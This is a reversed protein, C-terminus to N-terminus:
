NKSDAVAKVACALQRVPAQLVSLLMSIMGEKNPLKSLEIMKKKDVVKGEVIGAKIVLLDNKRSYKALVKAGATVDKCFILANPGELYQAADHLGLSEVARKVLTNKYVAMTSNSTKLTRRLDTLEAVTLGRYECVVVTASDKISAVVENVLESKTQLIEQNM